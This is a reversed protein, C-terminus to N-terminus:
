AGTRRFAIDETENVSIVFYGGAPRIGRGLDQHIRRDRLPLM